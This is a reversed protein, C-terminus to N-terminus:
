TVKECASIPFWLIDYDTTLAWSGKITAITVVDPGYPFGLQCCDAIKSQETRFENWGTWDATGSIKTFRVRDGPKLGSRDSATKEYNRCAKNTCHYRFVLEARGGCIPCVTKSQERQYTLRSLEM